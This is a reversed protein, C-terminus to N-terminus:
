WNTNTLFSVATNLALHWSFAPLKQPNLPLVGQLLLMAFIAVGCVINFLLLGIAYRQWGMEEDRNVGGLKYMLNECPALVPTLFTREGQYVKAMFTGLPKILALLVVFFLITQLWEYMNM